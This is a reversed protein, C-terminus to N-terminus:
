ESDSERRVRLRYASLRVQGRDGRVTVTIQQVRPDATVPQATIRYLFQATELSESENQTRSQRGIPVEVEEEGLTGRALAVELAESAYLLMQHREVSSAVLTMQLGVSHLVVGFGLAAIALALLVEVLTFGKKESVSKAAQRKM